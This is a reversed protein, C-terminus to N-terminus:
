MHRVIMVKNQYQKRNRKFDLAASLEEFPLKQTILEKLKLKGECCARIVMHWDDEERHTFSSNWTGCITVQKRLLKWYIEKPLSIGGHPNGVILIRGGNKVCMLADELAGSTGLCDIVMHAGEGGTEKMLWEATEQETVERYDYNESACRKMLLGPEKGHGTALVRKVGYYALWQVMISGITGLGLLAVTKGALDPYDGGATGSLEPILRRVAHLAVSAPELMAAEEFSITEPLEILNWVPVAAYEGFGGDQRSGLYGYHHCTEYSEESCSSCSRCPLLPFIGVRKGIWDKHKEEFVAEVTGSFEHGPILPFYYAGTEYIRPIDSGCIGAAEVRILAEGQKLIPKEVEKYTLKGIAELVYAKM